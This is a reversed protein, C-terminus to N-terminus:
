WPPATVLLSRPKGPGRLGPHPTEPQGARGGLGQLSPQLMLLCRGPALVSSWPPLGSGRQFPPQEKEPPQQPSCLWILTQRHGRPSTGMRGRGAEDAFELCKGTPKSACGRTEGRRSKLLVENQKRKGKGKRYFLATSEEHSASTLTAGARAPFPLSSRQPARLQAWLPERQRALGPAAPEQEAADPCSPGQAQLYNLHQWTM